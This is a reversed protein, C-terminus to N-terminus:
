GEDSLASELRSREERLAELEDEIRGDALRERQDDTVADVAVAAERLREYESQRALDRIERLRAVLDEDAVRAVLPILERIRRHLVGAEAPPWSLHLPDADIGTLFTRRTAVRRKLEDADDVYHSLKSRSYDAYELLEPISYEGADNSEVYAALEDPPRDFEVLPYLRTRDLFAFVERASAEYVYSEFADDVRENYAEIPERLREVPADLDATALDLLDSRRDIEDELEHLRKRAATRAAELEERAHAREDLLDSFRSAPELAGEAREFDSESLRRKDIAELAAEFADRHALDDPLNEVLSTFQGELQVYARFNERGTGTARDVYGDLLKSANRYARAANEITEEGHEDIREEISELDARATELRDIADSPRQRSESM